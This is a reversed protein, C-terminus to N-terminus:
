PLARTAALVVGAAEHNAKVKMRIEEVMAVLTETQILTKPGTVIYRSEIVADTEDLFTM